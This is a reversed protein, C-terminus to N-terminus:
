RLHGSITFFGNAINVNDIFIDNAQLQTSLGRDLQSTLEDMMSDPIPFPGITASVIRYDLGGQGDAQVAIAIDAPLDLLGQESIASIQIQGKQLHVQIDKINAEAYQNLENAALSTLQTENFQMEISGGSAVTAVASKVEAKAQEVAQTTVPIETAELQVTAEQTPKQASSLFPLNCALISLTLFLSVLLLRYTNKM